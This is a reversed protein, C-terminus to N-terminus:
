KNLGGRNNVTFSTYHLGIFLHRLHYGTNDKRMKSLLDVVQGNSLVVELGLVNGHLSGYKIYRLGGANTALNGTKFWNPNKLYFNIQCLEKDVNGGILCSGKSGLDYPVLRNKENVFEEVNQLICGSECELVGSNEDLNLIKNMKRMSIVIEGDIPVSGGVLGTNGSQVVCKIDNAYAYKLINSM